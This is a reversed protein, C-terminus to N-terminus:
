VGIPVWRWAGGEAQAHGLSPFDCHPVHLLLNERCARALVERRTVPVQDRDIEVAITWDPHGFHIPHVVVDSISLLHEGESELEVMLQGPTHGPGAVLTMGPAIEVPPEILDVRDEIPGLQKRAYDAYPFASSEDGMWFEWERRWM